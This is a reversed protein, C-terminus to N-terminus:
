LAGTQHDNWSAFPGKGDGWSILPCSGDDWLHCVAQPNEPPMLGVSQGRGAFTGQPGLFTLGYRAVLM